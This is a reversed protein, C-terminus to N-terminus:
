IKEELNEKDGKNQEPKKNGALIDRVKKGQENLTFKNMINVLNKRLSKIQFWTIIFVIGFSIIVFMVFIIVLATEAM